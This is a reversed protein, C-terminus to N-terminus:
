RGMRGTRREIRQLILAQSGPRPIPGPRLEVAERAAEEWLQWRRVVGRGVSGSGRGPGSPLSTM